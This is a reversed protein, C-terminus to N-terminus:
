EKNLAAAVRSVEDYTHCWSPPYELADLGARWVALPGHRQVLGSVIEPWSM